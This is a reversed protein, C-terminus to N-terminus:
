HPIQKIGIAWNDAADQAYRVTKGPFEETFFQKANSDFYKIYAM